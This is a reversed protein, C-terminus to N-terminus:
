RRRRLADLAALIDSEDSDFVGQLWQRSQSEAWHLRLTRKRTFLALEERSMEDRAVSLSVEELM